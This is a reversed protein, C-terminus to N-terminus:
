GCPPILCEPLGNAHSDASPCSWQFPTMVSLTSPTGSFNAMSPSVYSSTSSSGPAESTSGFATSVEDLTERFTRTFTGSSDAAMSLTVSDRIAMAMARCPPTPTSCRLRDMSSWALWTSRTLRDSDPITVSGIVTRGSAVSCSASASHAFNRMLPTGTVSATPLSSPMTVLRSMAKSTSRPRWTRSTMVGIGSTVPM